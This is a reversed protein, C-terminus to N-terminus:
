LGERFRLVHPRKIQAVPLDGHLEAFRDIAYKFERLTNAPRAASKKWGEYAAGLTASASCSPQQPEVIEPTEVVEGKDRLAVAEISKVHARLMASGLERYSASNPDLSIRFVKLLEDIDWRLSSYDGRALAQQAPPPRGAVREAGRRREQAAFACKPPEGVEYAPRYEM